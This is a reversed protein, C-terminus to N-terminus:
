SSVFSFLPCEQYFSTYILSCLVLWIWIDFFILKPQFSLKIYSSVYFIHSLIPINRILTPSYHIIKVFDYNRIHKSFFLTSSLIIMTMMLCCWLDAENTFDDSYVRKGKPSYGPCMCLPFFGTADANCMGQSEDSSKLMWPWRGLMKWSSM